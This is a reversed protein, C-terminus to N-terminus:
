FQRRKNKNPISDIELQKALRQQEAERSVAARARLDAPCAAVEDASVCTSTLEDFANDGGCTLRRPRGEICMFFKQCDADSRYFRYGAPPGFEKSIPVEPCRFGLFAEADCDAVEDPWECRYSESSFALGEPCERLGSWVSLETM